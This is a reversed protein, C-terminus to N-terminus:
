SSSLRGSAAAQSRTSNCRRVSSAARTGSRSTPKLRAVAGGVVHSKARAPMDRSAAHCFKESTSRVVPRSGLFSESTCRRKERRHAQTPAGFASAASRPCAM